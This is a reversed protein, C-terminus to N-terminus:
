PRQGDEGVEDAAVVEPEACGAKIWAAVDSDGRVTEVYQQAEANLDVVYSSFRLAVPAYMADAISFRGFLWDGPESASERCQAWISQIRAIDSELAADMEVLRDHARCNMPMCRRLANFGSHMEASVSRALARQHPQEPWLQGAAFTENVYENIALSDWICRTDHWLVPVQRTPSLDTIEEEFRPTDLPIWREEFAVGSKRLGLWGRLSWSSYNKNGIVLVVRSM